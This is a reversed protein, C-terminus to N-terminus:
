SDDRAEHLHQTDAQLITMMYKCLSFDKIFFYKHYCQLIYFGAEILAERLDTNCENTETETKEYKKQHAFALVHEILPVAIRQFGESTECFPDVLAFDKIYGYSNLRLKQLNMKGEHLSITGIIKIKWHRRNITHVHSEPM